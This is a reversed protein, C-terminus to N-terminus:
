EIPPVDECWRRKLLTGKLLYFLTGTYYERSDTATTALAWFALSDCQALSYRRPRSHDSRCARVMAVCQIECQWLDSKERKMEGKPRM